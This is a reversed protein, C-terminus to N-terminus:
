LGHVNEIHHGAKNQERPVWTLELRVQGRLDAIDTRLAEVAARDNLHKGLKRGLVWAFNNRSDTRVEIFTVGKSRAWLMADRVAMLEAINNSGGPQTQESLVVGQDDTVVAVMHRVAMDTQNNASCGGDVYLVM